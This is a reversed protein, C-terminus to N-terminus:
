HKNIWCSFQSLKVIIKFRVMGAGDKTLFVLALIGEGVMWVCVGWGCVDSKFVALVSESKVTTEGQKEKCNWPRWHQRSCYLETAGPDDQPYEWTDQM